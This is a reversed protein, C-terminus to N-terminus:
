EKRHKDQRQKITAVSAEFVNGESSDDGVVPKRVRGGDRHVMHLGMELNFSAGDRARDLGSLRFANRAGSPSTLIAHKTGRGGARGDSPLAYGGNLPRATSFLSKASCGRFPENAEVHRM